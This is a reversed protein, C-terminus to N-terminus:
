QFSLRSLPFAPLPLLMTHHQILTQSTIQPYSRFSLFQKSIIFQHSHKLLKAKRRAKEVIKRIANVVLMPQDLQIFHGSREAIIHESHPALRLLDRQMRYRAEELRDVPWDHPWSARGETIVILPINPLPDAGHIQAESALIDVHECNKGKHSQVFHQADEPSLIDAITSVQEEHSASILVMGVVDDPHQSAYLRVNLGGFSHGVLVYPAPINLKKLLIHLEDVIQQSTRPSPGPDSHGIYARNYSVVHTFKAIDTPVKGWTSMPQCLGSELVVTPRGKGRCEVHLRHGGVDVLHRTMMLWGREMRKLGARLVRRPGLISLVIIFLAILAVPITVTWRVRM